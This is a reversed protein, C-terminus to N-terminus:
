GKVQKMQRQSKSENGSAREGEVLSMCEVPIPLSHWPLMGSLSSFRVGCQRVTQGEEREGLFVFLLHM